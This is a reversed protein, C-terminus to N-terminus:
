GHQLLHHLLAPLVHLRLLPALQLPCPSTLDLWHHAEIEAATQIPETLPQLGVFVQAHVQTHAENAAQATFHGLPALQTAPLQLGLEECLERLLTQLPQEMGDRKGGPLMWAQTGRKRVTLLQGQANRLCATAIYLHSLAPTSM